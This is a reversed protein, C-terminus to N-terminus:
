LNTFGVIEGALKQDKDDNSIFMENIRNIDKGQIRNNDILHKTEWKGDYFKQLVYIFELWRTEKELLRNNKKKSFSVPWWCFKIKARWDHSQPIHKRKIFKM